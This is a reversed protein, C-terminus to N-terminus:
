EPDKILPCFYDPFVLETTSLLFLLISEFTFPRKLFVYPEWSAEEVEELGQWKVLLEWQEQVKRHGRISDVNLLLDKNLVHAMIEESAELESDRYFKLRSHYVESERGTFLHKIVCSYEKCQIVRYPGLCNLRLKNPHLKMDVKAWLVMDGVNFLAPQVDKQAMQNALQRREAENAIELHIDVLSQHLIKMEEDCTRLEVPKPSALDDIMYDRDIPTDSKLVTFCEIAGRGGLSQCPIHNLIGMISLIIDPWKKMDLKMEAVVARLVQLLDKSVREVSGNKWHCYGLIYECSSGTLRALETIVKNKFHTGSDTEQHEEALGNTISANVVQPMQEEISKADDVLYEEAEMLGGDNEDQRQSEALCLLKDEVDIGVANLLPKGILIEWSAEQVIYCDTNPLKVPGVPTQLCLQSNVKQCCDRFVEANGMRYKRLSISQVHLEMGANVLKRDLIEPIVADDAGNDPCAPIIIVKGNDVEFSVMWNKAGADNLRRLKKAAVEARKRAAVEKKEAETLSPCKSLWHDQGFNWCGQKPKWKPKNISGIAGSNKVLANRGHSQDENRRNRTKEGSRKLKDADCGIPKLEGTATKLFKRALYSENFQAAKKTLEIFLANPDSKMGGSEFKGMQRIRFQLNMPLDPENPANSSNKFMRLCRSYTDPIDLNMELDAFVQPITGTNGDVAGDECQKNVFTMLIEETVDEESGVNFFWDVLAELVNPDVSDRVLVANVGDNRKVLRVYQTRAKKWEVLFERDTSTMRPASVAQFNPIPVGLIVVDGQDHLGAALM